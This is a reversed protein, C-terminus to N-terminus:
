LRFLSDIQASGVEVGEIARAATGEPGPTVGDMTGATVPREVTRTVGVSREAPVETEREQFGAGTSEGGMTRPTVPAGDAADGSRRRTTTAAVSRTPSTTSGRGREQAELLREM